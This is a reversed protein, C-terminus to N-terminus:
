LMDEKAYRPMVRHYWRPQGGENFVGHAVITRRLWGGHKFLVLL